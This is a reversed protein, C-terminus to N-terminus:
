DGSGSGAGQSPQLGPTTFGYYELHYAGGLHYHKVTQTTLWLGLAALGVGVLAIGSYSSLPEQFHISNVVGIIVALGGAAILVSGDATYNLKDRYRIVTKIDKLNYALPVAQSTDTGFMGLDNTIRREVYFTLFLTDKEVRNIIGSVPQDDRNIFDIQKGPYYREITRENRKLVLVGNLQARVSTWCAICLLFSLLTKM